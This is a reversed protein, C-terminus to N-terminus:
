IKALLVLKTDTFYFLIKRTQMAASVVTRLVHHVRTFTSEFCFSVLGDYVRHGIYLQDTTYLLHGCVSFYGWPWLSYTWDFVLYFAM